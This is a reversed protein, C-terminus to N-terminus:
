TLKEKGRAQVKMVERTNLQQFSWIINTFRGLFMKNQQQQLETELVVHFMHGKGGGKLCSDLPLKQRLTYDSTITGMNTSVFWAQM